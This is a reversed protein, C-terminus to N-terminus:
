VELKKVEGWRHFNTKIFDLQEQTPKIENDIFAHYLLQANIKSCRKAGITKCSLSWNSYDLDAGSLNAGRLNAGSLNAGRLNAGSLNAGRLNAWSLNAESLNVESLDAESLDAESLNAKLHPLNNDALYLEHNELVKLIKEKTM